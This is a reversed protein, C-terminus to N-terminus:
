ERPSGWWFSACSDPLMISPLMRPAVEPLVPLVVGLELVSVPFLLKSFLVVPAM